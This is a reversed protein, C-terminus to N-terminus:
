NNNFPLLVKFSTGGCEVGSEVVVKGDHEEAIKQATSLGLGTGKEKTTFFPYFVKGIDEKSIGAGSDKFTIEVFNEKKETYIEVEGGDSVADVANLGLNWFVQQLKRSDGKIYLSEELESPSSVHVRETSSNQMLTIVNRLSHHLDFNEVQLEQPRAYLLFDTIIGNLRDMESLAISMLHDASEGSVKKERLMEVSAKLSALPNRLEHAISASLEGIFAWQEKRKVEVEMTKLETLDQFIGIMGIPDGSSDKLTSLRMGVPFPKGERNYIEGEIRDLPVNCDELFPFVEVPKKGIVAQRDFGTIESASTNFTSICRNLDTTFVGSPMSDIIYKSFAKLDSLVTDREQLSKTARHLTESLYGSLFAVLFFASIYAFSKYFYDKATIFPDAPLQAIGYLQLGLLGAYLVSSFSAIVFCARRNLVIAASLISLPFMFAFISEIGGTIFILVAEALIDIIIQIYAFVTFNIRQKTWKIILAYVITLLYLFAIFYSLEEPHSIREYGIRFIHFSDLLLTVIVVRIVILASVRKTIDGRMM